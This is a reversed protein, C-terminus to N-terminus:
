WYQAGILASQYANPTAAELHWIPWCYDDPWQLSCGHGPQTICRLCQISNICSMTVLGGTVIAVKGLLRQAVGGVLMVRKLGLEMDQVLQKHEKNKTQHDVLASRKGKRCYAICLRPMPECLQSRTLLVAQRQHANCHHHCYLATVKPSGPPIPASMLMCCRGRWVGQSQYM